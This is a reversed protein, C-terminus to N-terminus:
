EESIRLLQSQNKEVVKVVIPPLEPKPPTVTISATYSMSDNRAVAEHRSLDFLIEGKGSAESIQVDIDPAQEPLKSLDVQIDIDSETKITAIPVGAINGISDLTYTTDWQALTEANPFVDEHNWTNKSQWTQGPTAQAPASILSALDSAAEKFDLEEPVM